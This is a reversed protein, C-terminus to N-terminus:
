SFLKETTPNEEETLWQIFLDLCDTNEKDSLPRGFWSLIHWILSMKDKLFYHLFNFSGSKDLGYMNM